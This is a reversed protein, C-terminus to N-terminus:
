NLHMGSDKLAESSNQFDKISHQKTASGLQGLMRFWNLVDVKLTLKVETFLRFYGPVSRSFLTLPFESINKYAKWEKPHCGSAANVWTKIVVWFSVFYSNSLQKLFSCFHPSLSNSTILLVKFAIILLTGKIAILKQSVYGDCKKM